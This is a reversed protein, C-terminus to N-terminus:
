ANYEQSKSLIYDLIKEYNKVLHPIFPYKSVSHAMMYMGLRHLGFDYASLLATDFYEHKTISNERKDRISLYLKNFFDDIQKENITSSTFSLFEILDYVPFYEFALEWDYVCINLEAGNKKFFANRPNFDNHIISKPLNNTKTFLEVFKSIGFKLKNNLNDNYLEPFRNVANELLANWCPLLKEIQNINRSDNYLKTYWKTNNYNLDTWKIIANVGISIKDYDWGNTDMVSNLMIPNNFYEMLVIYLDNEENKYYGFIEPFFDATHSKYINIEKDHTNQFGTIEKVPHYTKYVEESCLNSLGSLMESIARGHPKVKMVMKRKYSKQDVIYDVELGYHGIFSDSSASTLTVLISASNDIEFRSVSKVSINKGEYRTSMIESIFEKTFYYEKNSM